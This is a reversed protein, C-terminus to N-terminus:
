NTQKINEELAEKTDFDSAAYSNVITIGKSYVESMDLDVSQVRAQYVLCLLPAM